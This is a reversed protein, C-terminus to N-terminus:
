ATLGSLDPEIRRQETMMEKWTIRTKREAADRGLMTTLTADVSPAVTVNACDGACVCRHFEAINRIAGQPYLDVVQGGEWSTRVGEMGVSGSYSTDLHGDQCYAACECRFGHNNHLHEGWHNLVLGDGFEYTISYVDHSDGHPANRVVRSAGVASVPRKGALWLAVDIAHIGANVLYSGGLDTDNVWILHQFRDAICDTLPPDKFAEDTYVSALLGLGGIEGDHVRRVGEIFLPDTRTQFDVLFVKGAAQAKEAAAAVRLCGPVDCAIPKAMYVHRGASVAAEAHDPFCYPPTELFVAEVDTDLLRRYGLLGSFRRNKPVDHADGARDAMEPFYDAVAAIEYGGHDRVMRAIMGGRGGLGVMGAKIRRKPEAARAAGHVAAMSGAALAGGLFTRRTVHTNDM